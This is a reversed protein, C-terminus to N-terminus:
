KQRTTREGSDCPMLLFSVDRRFPFFAMCRAQVASDSGSLFGSGGQEPNAPAKQSEAVPDAREAMSKRISTEGPNTM